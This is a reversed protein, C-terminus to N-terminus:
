RNKNKQSGPESGAKSRNVEQRTVRQTRQAMDGKTDQWMIVPIQSELHIKLELRSSMLVGVM